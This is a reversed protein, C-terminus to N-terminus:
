AARQLLAAFFGDTATQHPLLILFPTNQPLDPVAPVPQLRFQKNDALFAEVVAQNERQLLSCTVYLLRGGPRTLAAGAELLACQRDHYAEVQAEQLQWKLEPRRRLTGIGSCPADVLVADARMTFEKLKADREHRLPLTRIIRVGARKSRGALPALRRAVTDAAVVRGRNQMLAALHLSKGGGGACLDVVTEGPRPDLLPAMLQSGEDQIEFWGQQFSALAALPRRRTLRVGTPAYPTAVAEVGAAELAALLAERSARLRNVRLDVTAPQNLVAAVQEAQPEGWQDVFRQWLWDPLSFREAGGPPPGTAAGDTVREVGLLAGLRARSAPEPLGELMVAAACVLSFGDWAVAATASLGQLLGELRRRHRLAQYVWDAIRARERSGTHHQRFFRELVQDAAEGQGGTEPLLRQLLLAAQQIEGPLIASM